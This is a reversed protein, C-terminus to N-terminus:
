NNKHRQEEKGKHPHKPFSSLRRYMVFNQDIRIVILYPFSRISAKQLSVIRAGMNSLNSSGHGLEKGDTKGFARPTQM